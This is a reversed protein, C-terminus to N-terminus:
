NKQQRQNQGNKRFEMQIQNQFVRSCNFIKVFGQRM